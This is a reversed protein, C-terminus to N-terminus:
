GGRGIIQVFTPTSSTILSVQLEACVDFLMPDLTNGLCLPLMDGRNLKRGCFGGFSGKQFTSKSGLYDPVDFGEMSIALYARAGGLIETADESFDYAPKGSAAWAEM